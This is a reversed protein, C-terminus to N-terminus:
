QKPRGERFSVTRVQFYAMGFSLQYELWGNEPAMNTEPLTFKLPMEPLTGTLKQFTPGWQGGPNAQFRLTTVNILPRLTSTSSESSWMIYIIKIGGPPQLLIPM